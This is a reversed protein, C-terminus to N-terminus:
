LWGVSAASNRPLTKEGVRLGQKDWAVTWPHVFRNKPDERVVDRRPIVIMLHHAMAKFMLHLSPINTHPQAESHCTDTSDVFILRIWM